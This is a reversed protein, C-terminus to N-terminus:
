QKTLLIPDPTQPVRQWNKPDNEEFQWNQGHASFLVLSGQDMRWAAPAFRTVFPDCGPKVSLALADGAPSNVLSLVCLPPGAGRTVAWDGAMDDASLAPTAAAAQLIYRGEEPTFGDYMGGEVQSLDVIEKGQADLLHLDGYGDLSWGAMAATSPFLNPCNPDVDLKYGGTAPDARFTFHCVKDQDANSFVWPGVMAKAADSLGSSSAPSPEANPAPVSPAPANHPAENQPRLFQPPVDEPMAQQPPTEGPAEAPANQALAAGSCLSAAIAGVIIADWRHMGNECFRQGGHRAM